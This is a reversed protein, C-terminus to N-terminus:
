GVPVNCFDALVDNLTKQPYDDLLSVAGIGDAVVFRLRGDTVKKDMGMAQLMDEMRPVQDGQAFLTVPLQLAALLQRLREVDAATIRGLRASFEAAMLMGVAVAEGHLWTGYGALNEVAHGFTHGFNLIARLDNEREDAAVVQAKIACSRQIVHQLCASDRQNLEAVHQELWAFLEADAIVGYKVIEALGAAYERAPLHKLVETDILVARPQYFAGIMNKGAPHNVATKGGVSSDVQSLLTTPIQVFDVGRQFTAAVFGALDGVVGGGLAVVCTTRNHRNHMLCDLAATFSELNKFREGDQLEFVDVQLNSLAKQLQSGFLGFVQANSIVLVQRGRIHPLLLERLNASSLLGEGIHIPYSREALAVTLTHM